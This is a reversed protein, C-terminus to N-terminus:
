LNVDIPVILTVETIDEAEWSKMFIDGGLKEVIKKAVYLGIGQGERDKANSGRWFSKFVYATEEESLLGGKNKVSIIVDEDQRGMRLSIGKGSGYKVANDLLQSIVRYLGDKDSVLLPDNECVTEFPIHLLDMRGSYEEKVIAMLEKLYFSTIHLTYGDAAATSSDMIEKVLGEVKDVNQRIKGAIEADKEDPKKDDHYIGKEIAEAYLRINSLPTKIGHAISVILTQKEKEMVRINKDKLNMEDRLMNMGWIYRGFLGSRNRPIGETMRGKAIKEPYESLDNFPKVMLRYLIIVVLISATYSLLLIAGVTYATFSGDGSLYTIKLFAAPKGDKGKVRCIFESGFADRGMDEEYSSIDNIAIFEVADPVARDEYENHFSELDAAYRLGAAVAEEADRTMRNMVINRMGNENDYHKKIAPFILLSAALFFVSTIAIVRVISKM